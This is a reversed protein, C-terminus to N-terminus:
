KRAHSKEGGIKTFTGCVSGKETTDAARVSSSVESTPTIKSLFNQLRLDPSPSPSPSPPSGIDDRLLGREVESGSGNQVGGEAVRKASREGGREADRKANTKHAGLVKKDRAEVAKGRHEELRRNSLGDVTKVFKKGVVRWVDAFEKPTCGLLRALAKTDAPLCGMEWQYFLLDCYAGREALRMARTSAIFDRPFWPMMALSNGSM